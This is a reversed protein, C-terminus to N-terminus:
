PPPRIAGEGCLARESQTPGDRAKLWAGVRPWLRTHAAGSVVAGIHGTPFILNETDSSGVLEIFPLSSQPPVVDDYEGMINLVPCTIQRLRVRQRGVWFRDQILLNNRLLDGALERFLQGALPVDSNMWQEIRDFTLVFDHRERNRYLSTYKDVAHHVLAMSTFGIKILWAPYNGYTAILLDLAEPSLKAALAYLPIDRVRMDLPLTLTILNKVTEPHLATYIAALLGGLCYGLMSVQEAGERAQVIQVARALDGNVYADFGRTRDLRTPPVWDTLYVHFGQRVLNHVVSKGPLLDLIYPRKILAYVLILSTSVQTDGEAQYYRLRVTGSRYVVEYPTVPPPDEHLPFPESLGRRAGELLRIVGDTWYQPLHRLLTFM